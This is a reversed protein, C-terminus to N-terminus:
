HPQQHPEDSADDGDSLRRMVLLEREVIGLVILVVLVTWGSLGGTAVFLLGILALFYNFLLAVVM